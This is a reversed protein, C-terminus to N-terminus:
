GVDAKQAWFAPMWACDRRGWGAASAEDMAALVSRAVPLPFSGRALALALRLDKRMADIEFAPKVTDEGGLTAVLAPAKTKLVTPAGATDAFLEVLWKPDGSVDRMLAMAEGFAQWFAILPLNVALKTRAGSGVDGVHVVHKCLRDLTPRALEVDEALGGAFGLLQGSRAPAVTGSVPCEIFRGGAARLEQSLARQTDPGVTSMEIFLTDQACAVLGEPGDYVAKIAEADFLSSIVVECADALACPSNAYDLGAERVRAADRNWAIVECGTEVLRSAMAGGMKGFGAIGVRQTRHEIASSNLSTPM